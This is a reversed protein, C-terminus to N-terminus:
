PDDAPLPELCPRRPQGRCGTLGARRNAQGALEPGTRSAAAAAVQDHSAHSGTHYGAPRACGEARSGRLAPQLAASRRSTAPNAKPKTLLVVSEVAVSGAGAAVAVGVM